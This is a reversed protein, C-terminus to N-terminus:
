VLLFGQVTDKMQYDSLVCQQTSVDVFFLYKAFFYIEAFM